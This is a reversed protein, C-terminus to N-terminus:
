RQFRFARVVERTVSLNRHLEKSQRINQGLYPKTDGSNVFEHAVAMERPRDTNTPAGDCPDLTFDIRPYRGLSILRSDLDARARASRASLERLREYDFQFNTDAPGSVRCVGLDCM